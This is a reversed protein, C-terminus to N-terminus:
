RLEADGGQHKVVHKGPRDAAHGGTLIKGAQDAFQQLVKMEAARQGLSVDADDGCTKGHNHGDIEPPFIGLADGFGAFFGQM